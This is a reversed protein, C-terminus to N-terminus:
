VAGFRQRADTMDRQLALMSSKVGPGTIEEPNSPMIVGAHRVLFQVDELLEVKM